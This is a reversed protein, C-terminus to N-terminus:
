SRFIKAILEAINRAAFKRMINARHFEITRPSVELTRAAEKTSAGRIIEVLTVRERLTLKVGDPFERSLM